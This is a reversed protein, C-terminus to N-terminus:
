FSSETVNVKSYDTDDEFELDDLCSLLSTKSHFYDGQLEVCSKCHQSYLKKNFEDLLLFCPHSTTKSNRYYVDEMGSVDNIIRVEARGVNGTAVILGLEKLKKVARKVTQLHVGLRDAIVQNPTCYGKDNTCEEFDDLLEQYIFKTTIDLEVIVDGVKLYDSYFMPKYYKGEM